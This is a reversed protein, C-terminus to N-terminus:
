VPATPLTCIDISRCGTPTRLWGHTDQAVRPATDGVSGSCTGPPKSLIAFHIALAPAYGPSPLTFARSDLAALRPWPTGWTDGPHGEPTEGHGGPRARLAASHPRQSPAVTGGSPALPRRLCCPRPPRSGRPVGFFGLLSGSLCWVQDRAM